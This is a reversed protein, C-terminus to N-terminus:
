DGVKELVEIYAKLRKISLTHFNDKVGNKIVYTKVEQVDLSFEAVIIMDYGVIPMKYYFKRFRDTKVSLDEKYGLLEEIKLM